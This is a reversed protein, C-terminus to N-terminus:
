VILYLYRNKDLYLIPSNKQSFDYYIQIYYNM